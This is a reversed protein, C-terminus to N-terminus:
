SFGFNRPEANEFYGIPGKKEPLRILQLVSSGFRDTEILRVGLSLQPSKQRSDSHLSPRSLTSPASGYGTPGLLQAPGFIPRKSPCAWVSTTLLANSFFFSM